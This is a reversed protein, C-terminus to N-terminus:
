IPPEASRAAAPSIGESRVKDTSPQPPRQDSEVPNSQLTVLAASLRRLLSLRSVLPLWEYLFIEAPGWIAVWGFIVSSEQVITSFSGEGFIASARVALLLCAALVTVGILLARRGTRFLERIEDAESEALQKFGAAVQAAVDDSSQRAYEGPELHIVIRIRERKPADKARGVLYEEAEPALDSDRFPDGLRFLQSVSRLQLEITATATKHPM